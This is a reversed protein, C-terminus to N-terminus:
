SGWTVTADLGRLLVRKTEIMVDRAASATSVLGWVAMGSGCASVM